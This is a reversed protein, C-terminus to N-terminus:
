TVGWMVRRFIYFAWSASYGFAFSGIILGSFLALDSLVIM